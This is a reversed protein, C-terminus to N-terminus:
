GRMIAIAVVAGFEVGPRVVVAAAVGDAVVREAEAVADVDRVVHSTRQVDGDRSTVAVDFRVDCTAPILRGNLVFLSTM